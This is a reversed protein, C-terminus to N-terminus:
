GAAHLRLTIGDGLPLPQAFILAALVTVLAVAFGAVVASVWIGLQGGGQRRQVFRGGYFSLLVMVLTIMAPLLRVSLSASVGEITASFGLGGLMALAVLQFPFRLAMAVGSLAEEPGLDMSELSAEV